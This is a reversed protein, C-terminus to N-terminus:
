PIGLSCGAAGTKALFTTHKNSQKRVNQNFFLNQWFLLFLNSFCSDLWHFCNFPFIQSVFWIILTNRFLYFHSFTTFWSGLLFFTIPLFKTMFEFHGLSHTHCHFQKIYFDSQWVERWILWHWGLVNLLFSFFVWCSRKLVWLPSM